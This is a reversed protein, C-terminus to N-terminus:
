TQAPPQDLLQDLEGSKNLAALDTYGGVCRDNIFIQPVTRGGSLEIMEKLLQPDRDVDIEDFAAEKQGLLRKAAACYGCWSKSYM